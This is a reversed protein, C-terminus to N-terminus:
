ARHFACFYCCRRGSVKVSRYVQEVKVGVGTGFDSSGDCHDRFGFLCRSARSASLCGGFASRVFPRVHVRVCTRSEHDREAGTEGCKVVNGGCSGGGLRCLSVAGVNNVYLSLLTVSENLRPLPSM